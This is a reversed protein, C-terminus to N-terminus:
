IEKKMIRVSMLKHVLLYFLVAIVVLVAAYLHSTNSLILLVIVPLMMLTMLWILLVSFLPHLHNTNGQFYVKPLLLGAYMGVACPVLPGALLLLLLTKWDFYRTVEVNFIVGVVLATILLGPVLLVQHLIYFFFFKRTIFRKVTKRNLRYLWLYKLEERALPLVTMFGFTLSFLLPLLTFYHPPPIPTSQSADYFAYIFFLISMLLPSLLMKGAKTTILHGINKYEKMVTISFREERREQVAIACAGGSKKTERKKRKKDAAEDFTVGITLGAIKRYLFVVSLLIVPIWILFFTIEMSFPVPSGTSLTTFIAILPEVLDRVKQPYAIQNKYFLFFLVSLGVLGVRWLIGLVRGRLQGKELFFLKFFYNVILVLNRYVMLIIFSYFFAGPQGMIAAYVLAVGAIWLYKMFDRAMQYGLVANLNRTSLATLNAEKRTIPFHTMKLLSFCAMICCLWFTGPNAGTELPMATTSAPLLRYFVHWYAIGGGLTLTVTFLILQVPTLSKLKNFFGKIHFYYVLALSQKIINQKKSFLMKKSM